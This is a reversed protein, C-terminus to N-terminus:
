EDRGVDGARFGEGGEPQPSEPEQRLEELQAAQEPSKPEKRLKELEGGVQREAREAEEQLLESGGGGGGTAPEEELGPALRETDLQREPRSQEGRTWQRCIAGLWFRTIIPSTRSTWTWTGTRTKSVCRWRTTTASKSSAETSWGSCKVWDAM